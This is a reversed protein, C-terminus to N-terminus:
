PRWRDRLFPWTRARRPSYRSLRPQPLVTDAHGLRGSLAPWGHSFVIPQGSGWDKYYITSALTDRPLAAAAITAGFDILLDRQSPLGIRTQNKDSWKRAERQLLGCGVLQLYRPTKSAHLELEGPVGERLQFDEFRLTTAEARRLGCGILLSLLARNRRSRLTDASEAGL